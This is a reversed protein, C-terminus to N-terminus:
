WFLCSILTPLPTPFPFEQVNNTSIYIPVFLMSFLIPYVDLPFSTLERYSYRREGTWQVMIALICFCHCYPDMSSCIIFIHFVYTTSYWEPSITMQFLMSSCPLFLFLESVSLFANCTRV